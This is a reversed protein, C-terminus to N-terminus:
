EKIIRQVQELDQRSTVTVVLINKNFTDLHLSGKQGYLAFFLSYECSQQNKNDRKKRWPTTL